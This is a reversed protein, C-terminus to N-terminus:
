AEIILHNRWKDAKEPDDFWYERLLPAIETRIVRNYWDAEDEGAMPGDCFYSHGIAFGPGLNSTDGTIAENLQRLKSLLADSLGDSVGRSLLQAKFKPSSLNPRLDVFAFRRRLAYDVVALSRDATNMLGLIFVNKPVHFPVKGSALPMAYRSSRKDSEILLMLEGLIKSLNGRNIEDIIFVYRRDPDAEARRCFEVFKGSKLEFGNESPRYGEVFDEYSYSQHFQVFGVRDDAEAGILAYALKQAAYSKGVGPPGQLIVNQKARWLLLLDEVDERALFLTELADELTYTKETGAAPGDEEPLLYPLHEGTSELYARNLISLLTPTAETLYAGQNLGRSRNYFLGKAGSEALEKLETAYPETEFFAERYLPPDLKKFDELQIRFAAQGAWDTGELGIFREDAIESAISVGTIARNDTLHLVVDGPQVQTMAGYINKGDVSRQPSWLAQGLAHEGNERDSRGKVITKEIWFRKEVEQTDEADIEDPWLGARYENAPMLDDLEHKAAGISEVIHRVNEATMLQRYEDDLNEILANVRVKPEGAAYVYGLVTQARVMGREKRGFRVQPRTINTHWWDLGAEHVGHALDRFIERQENSWLSLAQRFASNSEFHKLIPDKSGEGLLNLASAAEEYSFDFEAIAESTWDVLEEFSLNLGQAIPLIAVIPSDSSMTPGRLEEYRSRLATDPQVTDIKVIFGVEGEIGVTYALSKPSTKKPYIKAWNYPLFSNAQSTPRKRVKVSGEPFDKQQLARAWAETSAYAAKLKDYANNQDPDTDDRPVGSYETLLDFHERTFGHELSM